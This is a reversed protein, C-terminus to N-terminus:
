QTGTTGITGPLPSQTPHPALVIVTTTTAAAAVGAWFWWRHYFPATDGGRPPELSVAVDRSQGAAVVIEGHHPVFGPASVDLQHGGALLDLDVPAPGVERGDISVRAGIQTAAVRVHGGRPVPTLTLSVTQPTGAVVIIERRALAFDTASAAIAHSGAAVKVVGDLGMIVPRGDMTVAAGAPSVVLTVDALLSKMDAILKEVESKKDRSIAPVRAGAEDLYMTLKEISEPYRFLAKYTLGMNYLVIPEKSIVYAGEFEALSADYNQDQFLAVGQQFHLRAESLKSAPPPPTSSAPAPSPKDAPVPAPPLPAPLVTPPAFRPPAVPGFALGRACLSVLTIGV